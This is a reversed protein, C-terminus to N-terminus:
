KTKEPLTYDLVITSNGRLVTVSIIDGAQHNIIAKKWGSKTTVTEGKLSVIYDNAEFPTRADKVYLGIYKYRSFASITDIEYFSVADYDPRGSVFGKQIIDSVVDGVIGVPIAFGIGEIRTDTSKANIIGVLEGYSNFLGGGSNGPNVAANTQLLVMDLNDVTIQREIASIIGNTVTGGLNGLPNGIAVVEEGVVLSASSGIVAPILGECNANLKLVALDTKEDLGQISAACSVGDALTVSINDANMIVHYNTVIYGNESIIVGSGAGSAVYNGYYGGYVTTETKIEVVSHKAVNVVQSISLPKGTNIQNSLPHENPSKYVVVNQPKGGSDVKQAAVISSIVASLVSILLAGVIILAIVAGSNKPRRNRNYPINSRDEYYFYGKNDM